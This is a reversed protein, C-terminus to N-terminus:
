IQIECHLHDPTWRPDHPRGTHYLKWGRGEWFAILWDRDKQHVIHKYKPLDKHRLWKFDFALSGNSGDRWAKYNPMLGTSHKSTTKGNRRQPRNCVIGLTHVETYGWGALAACCAEMPAKCAPNMLVRKIPIYKISGDSKREDYFFQIGHTDIQTAM